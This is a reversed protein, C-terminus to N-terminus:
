DKQIQKPIRFLFYVLKVRICNETPFWPALIWITQQESAECSLHLLFSYLDQWLIESFSIPWKLCELLNVQLWLIPLSSGELFLFMYSTIIACKRRNGLFLILLCRPIRFTTNRPRYKHSRQRHTCIWDILYFPWLITSTSCPKRPLPLLIM